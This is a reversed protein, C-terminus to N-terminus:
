GNGHGEALYEAAHELYSRGRRELWEVRMESTRLRSDKLTREVWPYLPDCSFGHGLAYALLISLGVGRETAVGIGEAVAPGRKVLAHLSEDGLYAHREPFLDILLSFMFEDLEPGSPVMIPKRIAECARGLARAYPKRDRGIVRDVFDMIVDHLGMARVMQDSYGPDTLIQAACHLLPDTDFDSGFLFMCEIYFRVPGRNTFGYGKARKIGLRTVQRVNVEGIVECHKSAFDKLHEVMDNEFSRLGLDDFAPMQAPQFRLM